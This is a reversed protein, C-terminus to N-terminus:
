QTDNLAYRVRTSHKNKDDVAAFTNYVSIDYLNNFIQMVHHKIGNTPARSIGNTYEASEAM